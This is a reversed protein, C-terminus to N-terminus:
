RTRRPDCGHRLCSEVGRDVLGRFPQEPVVTGLQNEPAPDPRLPDVAAGSEGVHHVGGFFSSPEDEDVRPRANTRGGEVVLLERARQCRRGALADIRRRQREGRHVQGGVRDLEAREALCPSAGQVAVRALLDVDGRGAVRELHGRRVAPERHEAAVVIHPQPGQLVALLAREGIVAVHVVVVPGARVVEHVRDDELLHAERVCRGSDRPRRVRGAHQGVASHLFADALRVQDLRHGGVPSRWPQVRAPRHEGAVVM